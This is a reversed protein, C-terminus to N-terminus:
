KMRDQERLLADLRTRRQALSEKLSDSDNANDISKQREYEQALKDTLAKEKQIEKNLYEAFCPNQTATLYNGFPYLSLDTEAEACSSAHEALLILYYQGKEFVMDEKRIKFRHEMLLRRLPLWESQPSLVLHRANRVRERTFGEDSFLIHAITEGGMGAIVVTDADESLKTLGDSLLTPIENQLGARRISEKAKELPGERLDMAWVRDALKQKILAISLKAHDCGVDAVTGSPPIMDLIKDLRVSGTFTKMM